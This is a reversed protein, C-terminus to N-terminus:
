IKKVSNNKKNLLLVNYTFIIYNQKEKKKWKEKEKKRKGTQMGMGYVLVASETGEQKEWLM